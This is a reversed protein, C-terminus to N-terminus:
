AHSTPLVLECCVTLHPLRTPLCTRIPYRSWVMVWYEACRHVRADFLSPQPPYTSTPAFDAHTETLIWIDAAIDQFTQRIAPAIKWGHPRARAINWTAIRM